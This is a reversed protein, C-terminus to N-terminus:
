SEVPKLIEGKAHVNQRVIFNSFGPMKIKEGGELTGKMIDFVQDVNKASEKMAWNMKECLIKGLDIRAISM